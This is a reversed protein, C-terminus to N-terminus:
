MPSSMVSKPLSAVLEKASLIPDEVADVAPLWGMGPTRRHVTRSGPDGYHNGSALAVDLEVARNARDARLRM